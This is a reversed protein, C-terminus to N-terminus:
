YSIRVRCTVESDPSKKVPESLKAVGLLNNNVDYMGVSTIYSRSQNDTGSTPLIRGDDDVFTPNSSYNFENNLARCFYLTSHLNTQNNFQINNIRKRLGDIVNDINGTVPVQNLYQQNATSGSWYCSGPAGVPLFVGTAFVIIGANYYVKGIATSGSFLSAEAGAVGNVYTSAAGIDTLNLGDGVLPVGTSGSTQISITTYGKSIEDKFIRRKFSLFFCERYQTTGFTFISDKNGLLYQAYQEYVRKKETNMFTQTYGAIASSSNHGYTLDILASASISTPAGDYITEWFGGSAASGSVINIYKKTYYDTGSFLNGTLPIVENIVSLQTSVDTSLNFDKFSM